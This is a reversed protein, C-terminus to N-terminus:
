SQSYLLGLGIKFVTVPTSYMCVYVQESVCLRDKHKELECSQLFLARYLPYGVRFLPTQLVQVYQVTASRDSDM